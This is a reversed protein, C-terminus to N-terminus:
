HNLFPYLPDDQGHAGKALQQFADSDREDSVPVRKCWDMVVQRHSLKWQDRRKTLRDLYRGYFHLEEKGGLLLHGASVCTETRVSDGDFTYLTNSLSHRTLEYQGQLAGVVLAAFDAAPGKFAGYDVEAGPWYCDAICDADLRDLGRSHLALVEAIALRNAVGATRPTEGSSSAM